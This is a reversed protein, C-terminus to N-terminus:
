QYLKNANIPQGSGSTDQYVLLDVNRGTLDINAHAVDPFLVRIENLVLPYQGASLTYRNLGLLVLGHGSTNLGFQYEMGGDDLIFDIFPLLPNRYGTRAGEDVPKLEVSSGGPPIAASGEGPRATVLPVLMLLGFAAVFISFSRKMAVKRECERGDSKSLLRTRLDVKSAEM